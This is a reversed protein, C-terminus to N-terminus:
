ALYIECAICGVALLLIILRGPYGTGYMWAAAAMAASLVMLVSAAAIKRKLYPTTLRKFRTKGDILGCIFAAAVTFPMLLASIKVTILLETGLMSNIAVGLLIFPPIITVFAQPFHVAIPHLNLALITKRKKSINERYPEFASRPVGCAPCVDGLRNESIILGCAKCRLQEM